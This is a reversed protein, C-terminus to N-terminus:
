FKYQKVTYNTMRILDSKYRFGDGMMEVDIELINAVWDNYYMEMESSFKSQTYKIIEKDVDYYLRGVCNRELTAHELMKFFM